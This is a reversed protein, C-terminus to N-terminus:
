ECDRGGDMLGEVGDSFVEAYAESFKLAGAKGGVDSYGIEGWIAGSIGLGDCSVDSADSGSGGSAIM